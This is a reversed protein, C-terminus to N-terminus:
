GNERFFQDLNSGWYFEERAVIGDAEIIERATEQLIRALKPDQVIRHLAVWFTEADPALRDALKLIADEDPASPIELRLWFRSILGELASRELPHYEQDCRAIFVLANLLALFDARKRVSLGFGVPSKQVNDPTFSSFFDEVPNLSEGTRHDFVEVIRDIRFQRAAKRSHCFAYVYKIGAHDDLRKCTIVRDSIEGKANKYEVLIALGSISQLDSQQLDSVIEDDEDAISSSLNISRSSHVEARVFKDSIEQWFGMVGGGDFGSLGHRPMM